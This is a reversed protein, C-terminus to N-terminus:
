KPKLTKLAANLDLGLYTVAVGIIIYETVSDIGLGRLVFAGVLLIATIVHRPQWAKSLPSM